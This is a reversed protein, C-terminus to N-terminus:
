PDPLAGAVADLGAPSKPQHLPALDVLEELQRRVDADILVAGSFEPGGHAVRRGVADAEALGDALASELAVPDLEARPAALERAALTEDSGGLLTLKLSSSGANVVLLRAACATM